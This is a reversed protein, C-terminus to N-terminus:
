RLAPGSGAHMGPRSRSVFGAMFAVECASELLHSLNRRSIAWWLLRASRASRDRLLRIPGVDDRRPLVARIVAYTRGQAYARGAFYRLRIRDRDVLEAVWASSAWFCRAGAARMRRFLATDEGGGVNFQDDFRLSGLSAVRIACNGSRLDADIWGDPINATARPLASRAFRKPTGAPWTTLVPGVVVDAGVDFPALIAALWGASPLEDDDIMVLVDFSGEVARRIAENRIESYGPARHSAYSMGADRSLDAIADEHAGNQLMLPEPDHGAARIAACEAVLARALPVLDRQGLTPVVVLIRMAAMM